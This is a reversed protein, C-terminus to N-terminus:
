FNEKLYDNAPLVAFEILYCILTKTSAAYGFFPFEGEIINHQIVM